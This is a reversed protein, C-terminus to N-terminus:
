FFFGCKKHKKHYHACCNKLLYKRLDPFVFVLEYYFHVSSSFLREKKATTAGDLMLMM